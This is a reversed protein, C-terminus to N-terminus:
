GLAMYRAFREIDIDILGTLAVALLERIKKKKIIIIKKKNPTSV